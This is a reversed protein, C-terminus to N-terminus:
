RSASTHRKLQEKTKALWAHRDFAQEPEPRAVATEVAERCKAKDLTEDPLTAKPVERMVKGIPNAPIKTM